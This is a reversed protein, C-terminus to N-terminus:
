MGDVAGFYAQFKSSWNPCTEACTRMLLRRAPSARPSDDALKTPPGSAQNGHDSNPELGQLWRHWWYIRAINRLQPWKREGVHAWINGRLRQLSSWRMWRPSVGPGLEVEMTGRTRAGAIIGRTARGRAQGSAGNPHAMPRLQGSMRRVRMSALTQPGPLSQLEVCHHPRACAPTNWSLSPTTDTQGSPLRM